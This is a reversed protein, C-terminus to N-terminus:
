HSAAILFNTLKSDKQKYICLTGNTFISEKNCARKTDYHKTEQNIRGINEISMAKMKKQKERM